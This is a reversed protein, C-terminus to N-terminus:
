VQTSRSTPPIGEDGARPLVARSVRRSRAIARPLEVARTAPVLTGAAAELEGLSDDGDAGPISVVVGQELDHLSGEVLTHPEMRPVESMDVGQRSHFESRM